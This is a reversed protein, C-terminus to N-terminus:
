MGGFVLFGESPNLSWDAAGKWRHWGILHGMWVLYLGRGEREREPRHQPRVWIGASAARKKEDTVSVWCGSPGFLWHGSILSNAWIVHCVWLFLWPKEGGTERNTWSDRRRRQLAPCLQLFHTKFGSAVSSCSWCVEATRVEMSVSCVCSKMSVAAKCVNLSSYGAINEEHWPPSHCWAWASWM